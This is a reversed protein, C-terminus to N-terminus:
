APLCVVAPPAAISPRPRLIEPALYLALEPLISRSSRLPQHRRFPPITLGGRAGRTVEPIEAPGRLPRWGLVLTTFAIKSSSDATVKPKPEIRQRAGGSSDSSLGRM